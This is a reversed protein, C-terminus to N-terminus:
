YSSVKLEYKPTSTDQGEQRIVAADLADAQKPPGSYYDHNFTTWSTVMLSNFRGTRKLSTQSNITVGSQQRYAM